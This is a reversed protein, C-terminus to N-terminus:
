EQMRIASVTAILDSQPSAILVFSGLEVAYEIGAHGRALEDAIITVSAGDVERVTGFQLDPEHFTTPMLHRWIAGQRAACPGILIRGTALPDVLDALSIYSLRAHMALLTRCM